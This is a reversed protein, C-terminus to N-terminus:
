SVNVQNVKQQLSFVFEDAVFHLIYKETSQNVNKRDTQKYIRFSKRFSLFNSSKEVDILIVESGDFSLAKSLGVADTLLINGSMMPMFLSDYINIEDYIASIDVAGGKSM